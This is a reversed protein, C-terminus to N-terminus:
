CPTTAHIVSSRSELWVAMAIYVSDFDRLPIRGRIIIRRLLVERTEIMSLPLFRTSALVSSKETQVIFARQNRWRQNM